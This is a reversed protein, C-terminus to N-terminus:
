HEHTHLNHFLPRDFTRSNKKQRKKACQIQIKQTTPAEELKSSVLELKEIEDM